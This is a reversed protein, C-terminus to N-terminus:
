QLQLSSWIPNLQLGSDLNITTSKAQIGLTKLSHKVHFFGPPLSCLKTIDRGHIRVAKMSEQLTYTSSAAMKMMEHCPYWTFSNWFCASVLQRKPIDIWRKYRKLKNIFPANTKSIPLILMLGMIFANGKRSAMQVKNWIRLSMWFSFSSLDYTTTNDIIYM